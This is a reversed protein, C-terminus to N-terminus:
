LLYVELPGPIPLKERNNGKLQVYVNSQILSIETNKTWVLLPKYVHLEGRHRLDMKGRRKEWVAM